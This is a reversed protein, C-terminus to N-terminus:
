TVHMSNIQCTELRSRKDSVQFLFFFFFFSFYIKGGQLIWQNKSKGGFNLIYCKVGCVKLNHFNLENPRKIRLIGGDCKKKKFFFDLSFFFFRFFIYLYISPHGFWGMPPPRGGRKTQPPEAMGLGAPIPTASGGGTAWPSISDNEFPNWPRPPGPRSARGM